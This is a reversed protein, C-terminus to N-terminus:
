REIKLTALAQDILEMTDVLSLATGTRLLADHLDRKRHHISIEAKQPQNERAGSSQLRQMKRITEMASAAHAQEWEEPEVQFEPNILKQDVLSNILHVAQLPSMTQTVSDGVGMNQRTLGEAMFVPSSLALQM